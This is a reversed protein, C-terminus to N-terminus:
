SVDEVANVGGATHIASADTSGTYIQKNNAARIWTSDAMYWGGGYTSFLLSSTGEININDRAYLGRVVVDARESAGQKYFWFQDANRMQLSGAFLGPHHFGIGPFVTNTAGNRRTEIGLAAYDNGSGVAIVHGGTLTGYSISGVINVTGWDNGYNITLRNADGEGVM